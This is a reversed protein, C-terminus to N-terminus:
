ALVLRESVPWVTETLSIMKVISPNNAMVFIENPLIPAMDVNLRNCRDFSDLVNEFIDVLAM